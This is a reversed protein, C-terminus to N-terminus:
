NPSSFESRHYVALLEAGDWVRVWEAATALETEYVARVAAPIQDMNDQDAAVPAAYIVGDADDTAVIVRRGAASAGTGAPATAPADLTGFIGTGSDGTYTYTGNDNDVITGGSGDNFEIVTQGNDDTYIIASSDGSIQTGRLTYSGGDPGYKTYSAEPIIHGHDGYWFRSAAEALAPAVTPATPATRTGFTQPRGPGTFTYTGDGNDTITGGSGDYFDIAIAGDSDRCILAYEGGGSIRTAETTFDNGFRDCGTHGLGTRTQGTDGFWHQRAAEILEPTIAIM